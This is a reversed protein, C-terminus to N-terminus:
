EDNFTLGNKKLEVLLKPLASPGFGHLKLLDKKSWKSLQQITAIGASELARRAPAGVVSLFGDTPQEQAACVPCVPCDSSKFYTHGKECTRKTKKLPPM